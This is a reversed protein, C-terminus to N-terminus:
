LINKIRRITEEKGIIDMITFPDPSKEKLSMIMRLPHLVQGRGVTASWDWIINKLNEATWIKAEDLGEGESFAKEIIELVLKLNNKAEDLTQNGNKNKFCINELDFNKFDADYSFAHYCNNEGNQAATWVESFKAIRERYVKLIIKKFKEFNEDIGARAEIPYSEYCGKVFEDESLM